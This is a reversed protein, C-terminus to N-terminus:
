SLEEPLDPLMVQSITSVTKTILKGFSKAWKLSGDKLNLAIIATPYNGAPISTPYSNPTQQVYTSPYALNNSAAVSHPITHTQGTGFYLTGRALDIVPKSGWVSNGSWSNEPGSPRNEWNLDNPLNMPVTYFKWLIKGTNVNLAVMSGRFTCCHYQKGTIPLTYPGNASGIGGGVSYSETTSVGVYLTNGTGVPSQTIFATPHNDIQTAWILKGTHRNIAMMVAGEEHILDTLSYSVIPGGSGILLLDGMITPTTWGMKVTTGVAIHDDMGHLLPSYDTVFNKKWIVAGTRNDLATLNGAMDPFYVIHGSVSPAVKVDGFEGDPATNYIFKPVLQGVNAPSIENESNNYATNHIFTFEPDKNIM